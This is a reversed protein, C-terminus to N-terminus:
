RFLMGWQAVETENQVFNFGFRKFFEKWQFKSKVNIHGQVHEMAKREEGEKALEEEDPPISSFYVYKVRPRAAILFKSLDEDSIHEFTEITYLADFNRVFIYDKVEYVQYLAALAPHKNDFYEKLYQNNDIGAIELSSGSNNVAVLFQGLGSGVELISKCGLQKLRNVGHMHLNYLGMYGRDELGNGVDVMREGGWFHIMLRAFEKQEEDKTM